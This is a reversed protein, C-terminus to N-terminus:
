QRFSLVDAPEKRISVMSIMSMMSVMLIMHFIMLM